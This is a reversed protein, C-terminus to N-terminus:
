PTIGGDTMTPEHELQHAEWLLAIQTQNAEIRATNERVDGLLEPYAILVAFFAGVAAGMLLMLLDRGMGSRYNM